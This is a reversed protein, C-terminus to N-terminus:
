IKRLNQTTKDIEIIENLFKMKIWFSLNWESIKYENLFKNENSFKVNM